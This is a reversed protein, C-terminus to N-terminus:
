LLLLTSFIIIISVNTIPGEGRKTHKSWRNQCISGLVALCYWGIKERRTNSSDYYPSVCITAWSWPRDLYTACTNHYSQRLSVLHICSMTPRAKTLGHSVSLVFVTAIIGGVSMYAYHGRRYTNMLDHPCTLSLSHGSTTFAIKDEQRLIKTYYYQLKQLTDANVSGRTSQEITYGTKGHTHTAM